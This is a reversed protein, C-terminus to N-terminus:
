DQPEEIKFTEGQAAKEVIAIIVQRVKPEKIQFFAKMLRLAAVDDFSFDFDFTIAQSDPRPIALAARDRNSPFSPQM